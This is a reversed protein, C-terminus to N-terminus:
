LAVPLLPGVLPAALGSLTPRANEGADADPLVPPTVNTDLFDDLM